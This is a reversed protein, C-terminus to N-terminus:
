RYPVGYHAAALRAFQELHAKTIWSKQALHEVWRLAEGLDTAKFDYISHGDEYFDFFQGDFTVLPPASMADLARQVADAMTHEHSM